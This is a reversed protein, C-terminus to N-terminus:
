HTHTHTHTHTLLQTRSVSTYYDTSSTVITPCFATVGHELLLRAVSAVGGAVGGPRLKSFDVGCGGAHGLARECIAVLPTDRVM